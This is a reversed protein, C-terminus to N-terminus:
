SLLEEKPVPTVVPDVFSTGTFHFHRGTRRSTFLWGHRVDKFRLDDYGFAKRAQEVEAFGANLDALAAGRFALYEALLAERDLSQLSPNAGATMRLLVAGLIRAVPRTLTACLPPWHMMRLHVVSGISEVTLKADQETRVTIASVNDIM